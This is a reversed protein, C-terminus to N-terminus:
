SRGGPQSPHRPQTEPSAALPTHAAQEQRRRATRALVEAYLSAIFYKDPRAPLDAPALENIRPQATM